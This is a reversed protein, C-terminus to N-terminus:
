LLKYAEVVTASLQGNARLADVNALDGPLIESLKAPKGDRTIDATAPVAIAVPTIGEGNIVITAAGVNLVTGSVEILQAVEDAPDSGPVDDPDVSVPSNAESDRNIDEVADSTSVALIGALVAGGTLTIISIKM